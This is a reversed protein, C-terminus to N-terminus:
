HIWQDGSVGPWFLIRCFTSHQTPSSRTGGAPQSAPQGRSGTKQQSVIAFLSSMSLPQTYYYCVSHTFLLHGERLKQASLWSVSTPIITRPVPLSYSSVIRTLYGLHISLYTSLVRNHHKWQLPPLIWFRHVLFLLEWVCGFLSFSGLLSTFHIQKFDIMSNYETLVPSTNNYCPHTNLWHPKLFFHFM